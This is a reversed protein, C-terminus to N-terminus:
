LLYYIFLSCSCSFGSKKFGWNWSVESNEFWNGNGKSLINYKETIKGKIEWPLKRKGKSSPVPLLWSLEHRHHYHYHHHRRLSSPLPLSVSLLSLLKHSLFPSRHLPFAFNQLHINRRNLSVLKCAQLVTSKIKFLENDSKVCLLSLRPM